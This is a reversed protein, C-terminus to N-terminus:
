FYYEFHEGRDGPMTQWEAFAKGWATAEASEVLKYIEIDEVSADSSPWEGLRNFVERQAKITRIAKEEGGLENILESKYINTEEDVNGHFDIGIISLESYSMKKDGAGSDRPATAQLIALWTLSYVSM